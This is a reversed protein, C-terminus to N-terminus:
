LVASAKLMKKFAAFAKDTRATDGTAFRDILLGSLTSLVFNATPRPVGELSDAVLAIWAQIVGSAFQRYQPDGEMARLEVEFLTRMFPTLQPSSLAAWLLDFRTEPDASSDLNGLATHQQSAIDALVEVILQEKSGFHYLLLRPSVGIAAALPRLSLGTLGHELVYGAARRLLDSKAKPNPPRGM